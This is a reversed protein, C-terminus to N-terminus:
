DRRTVVTGYKMGYANPQALKYHGGISVGGTDAAADDFYYDLASLDTGSGGGTNDKCGKDIYFGQGM